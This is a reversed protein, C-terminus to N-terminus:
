FCRGGGSDREGDKVTAAPVYSMDNRDVPGITKTEMITRSKSTYGSPETLIASSDFALTSSYLGDSYELTPTFQKQIEPLSNTETEVTVQEIHYRHDELRNEAKVIGAFTYLFGNLEFPQEILKQPDAEPSLTYTKILRQIGNLNQVVTDTPIEMAFANVSLTLALLLCLIYKEVSFHKYHPERLGSRPTASLRHLQWILKERLKPELSDIFAAVQPARGPSQYVFLNKM